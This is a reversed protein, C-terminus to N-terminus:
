SRLSKKKIDLYYSGTFQQLLQLLCAIALRRNLHPAIFLQKYENFGSQFRGRTETSQAAKTERDFLTAAKIESLELFIRPDTEPVRRIRILVGRAEEERDIGRPLSLRM